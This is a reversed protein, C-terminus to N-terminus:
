DFDKATEIARDVVSRSAAEIMAAGFCGDTMADTTGALNAVAKPLEMSEIWEKRDFHSLIEPFFADAAEAIVKDQDDRTSTFGCADLRASAEAWIRFANQFEARLEARLDRDPMNDASYGTTETACSAFKSAGETSPWITAWSGLTIKGSAASVIFKAVEHQASITVIAETEASLDSRRTDTLIASKTRVEAEGVSIRSTEAEFRDLELIGSKGFYQGFGLANQGVIISIQWDDDSPQLALRLSPKTEFTVACPSRDTPSSVEYGQAGVSSGAAAVGAALIFAKMYVGFRSFDASDQRDAWM